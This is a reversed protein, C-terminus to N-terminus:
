EGEEGSEGGIILLWGSGSRININRDSSLSIEGIPKTLGSSAIKANSLGYTGCAASSFVWLSQEHDYGPGGTCGADAKPTLKM